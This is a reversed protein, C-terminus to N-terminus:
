WKALDTVVCQGGGHTWMDEMLSRSVFRGADGDPPVGSDNIYFGKIEGTTPSAAVGTVVIAHNAKGDEYYLPSDWLLGANVEVIVGRGEAVHEALVGLDGHMEVHAPLGFDRLLMAQDAASTGGCQDASTSGFHETHVCLDKEIAREVVQAETVEHGFQRLLGECSCLGCTGRYGFPNDGQGHVMDSATAVDGVALVETGDNLVDAVSPADALLDADLRDTHDPLFDPLKFPFDIM